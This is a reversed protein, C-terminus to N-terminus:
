KKKNPIPPTQGGRGGSISSLEGAPMCFQVYGTDHDGYQSYYIIGNGKSSLLYEKKEDKQNILKRKIEPEYQNEAKMEFDVVCHFNTDSPVLQPLEELTEAYSNLSALCILGTIVLKCKM